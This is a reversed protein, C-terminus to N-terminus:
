LAGWYGKASKQGKLDPFTFLFYLVNQQDVFIRKWRETSRFTIKSLNFHM